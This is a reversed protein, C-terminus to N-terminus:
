LGGSLAAGKMATLPPITSDRAAAPVCQSAAADTSPASSLEPSDKVLQSLAELAAGQAVPTAEQSDAAEDDWESVLDAKRRATCVRLLCCPRAKPTSEDQRVGM